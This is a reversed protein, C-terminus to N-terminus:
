TDVKSLFRSVQEVSAMWSGGRTWHAECVHELDYPVLFRPCVVPDMLFVRLFVSFALRNAIEMEQGRLSM